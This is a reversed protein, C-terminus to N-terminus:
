SIASTGFLTKAQAPEPAPPHAEAGHCFHELVGATVDSLVSLGISLWDSGFHYLLYSGLVIGLIEDLWVKKVDIGLHTLVIAIMHRCFAILIGGAAPVTFAGLFLDDWGGIQVALAEPMTMRATLAGLVTAFSVGGLWALFPEGGRGELYKRWLPKVNKHIFLRAVGWDLLARLSLSVTGLVLVLSLVRMVRRFLTEGQINIAHLRFPERSAALYYFDDNPYITQIAYATAMSMQPTLTADLVERCKKGYPDSGTLREVVCLAPLVDPVDPLAEGADRREQAIRNGMELVQEHNKEPFYGLWRNRAAERSSPSLGAYQYVLWLHTWRTPPPLVQKFAAYTSERLSMETDMVPKEDPKIKRRFSQFEEQHRAYLGQAWKLAAEQDAAKPFAEQFLSELRFLDEEAGPNGHTLVRWACWLHEDPTGGAPAPIAKEPVVDLEQKEIWCTRFLNEGWDLVAAWRARDKPNFLRAVVERAHAIEGAPATLNPTTSTIHFGRGDSCAGRHEYQGDKGQTTQVHVTRLKILSLWGMLRENDTRPPNLNIMKEQVADTYGLPRLPRGANEPTVVRLTLDFLEVDNKQALAPLGWLSVFGPIVLVLFLLGALRFPFVLTQHIWWFAGRRPAPHPEAPHSAAPPPDTPDLRFYVDRPM